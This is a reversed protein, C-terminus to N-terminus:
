YGCLKCFSIDSYGVNNLIDSKKNKLMYVKNHQMLHMVKQRGKWHDMELSIKYKGIIGIMCLAHESKFLCTSRIASAYPVSM